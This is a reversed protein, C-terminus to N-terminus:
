DSKNVKRAKKTRKYSRNSKVTQCKLNSRANNRPNGDKHGVEKGKPCKLKRSAMTRSSRNKRQAPKSHYNAYEKAYNRKAHKSNPM